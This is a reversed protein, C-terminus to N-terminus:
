EFPNSYTIFNFYLNWKSILRAERIGCTQRNKSKEDREDFDSRFRILKLLNHIADPKNPPPQIVQAAITIGNISSPNRSHGNRQNNITTQQHQQQQQQQQQASSQITISKSPPVVTTGLKPNSEVRNEIDCEHIEETHKSDANETIQTM